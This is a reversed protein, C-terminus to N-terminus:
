NSNIQTELDESGYRVKSNERNDKSSAASNLIQGIGGKVLNSNWKGLISCKQFERDLHGEARSWRLRTRRTGARRRRWKMVSM